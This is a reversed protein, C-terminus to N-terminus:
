GCIVNGELHEFEWFIDIWNSTGGSGSSMHYVLYAPKKKYAEIKYVRAGNGFSPEPCFSVEQYSIGMAQLIPLIDFECNSAPSGFCTNDPEIRVFLPPCKDRSKSLITVYWPLEEIYQRLTFKPQGDIM